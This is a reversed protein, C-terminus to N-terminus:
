FNREMIYEDLGGWGEDRMMRIHGPKNACSSDAGHRPNGRANMGPLWRMVGGEGWGGDRANWVSSPGGWSCRMGRGEGGREEEGKQRRTEGHGRHDNEDEDADGFPLMRAWLPLM